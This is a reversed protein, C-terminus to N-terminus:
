AQVVRGTLISHWAISSTEFRDLMIRNQELSPDNGGDTVVIHLGSRLDIGSPVAVQVRMVVFAAAQAAYDGVTGTNLAQVLADAEFLVLPTSSGGTDTVPDYDTATLTQPDEVRIRATFWEELAPRVQEAIAQVDVREARFGPGYLGM